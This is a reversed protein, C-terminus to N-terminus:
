DTNDGLTEAQVQAQTIKDALTNVLKKVEVDLLTCHTPLVKPRCKWFRSRWCTCYVYRQANAPTKTQYRTLRDTM